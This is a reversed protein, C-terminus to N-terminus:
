YLEVEWHEFPPDGEPWDGTCYRYLWLAARREAYKENLPEGRDDLELNNVFIAFIIEMETPSDRLEPWYDIGNLLPHGV